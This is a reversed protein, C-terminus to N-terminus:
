AMVQGLGGAMGPASQVRHKPWIGPKVHATAQVLPPVTAAVQVVAPVHVEFAPVAQGGAGCRSSSCSAAAASTCNAGLKDKSPRLTSQSTSHAQWAAASMLAQM